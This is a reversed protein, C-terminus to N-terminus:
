PWFCSSSKCLCLACKVVWSKPYQLTFDQSFDDLFKFGKAKPLLPLGYASLLSNALTAPDVDYALVLGALVDRRLSGAGCRRSHFSHRPINLQKVCTRGSTSLTAFSRPM